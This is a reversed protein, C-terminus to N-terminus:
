AHPENSDEGIINWTIAAGKGYRLDVKQVTDFEFETLLLGLRDLRKEFDKDGINVLWNNNLEITISGSQEITLQRLSLGRLKLIQQCQRFKHTAYEMFDDSAYIRAIVPPTFHEPINFIQGSTTVLSEDNWFAMPISEDVKIQITSPWRRHVSVHDVFPLREVEAQVENLDVSFFSKNEIWSIKEEILDAEWVLGDVDVEVNDIPWKNLYTPMYNYISLACFVSIPFLLLYWSWLSRLRKFYVMLFMDSKINSTAGRPQKSKKMITSYMWYFKKLLIM